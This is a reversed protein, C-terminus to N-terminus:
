LLSSFAGTLRWAGTVRGEGGSVRERWGGPVFHVATFHSEPIARKLASRLVRQRSEISGRYPGLLRIWVGYM